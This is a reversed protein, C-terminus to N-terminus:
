TSQTPSHSISSPRNSSIFALDFPWTNHLLLLAFHPPSPPSSYSVSTARLHLHRHLFFPLFSFLLPSSFPYLPFVFFFFLPASICNDKGLFRHFFYDHPHARKTKIRRKLGVRNVAEHLTTLTTLTTMVTLTTSGKEKRTQTLRQLM